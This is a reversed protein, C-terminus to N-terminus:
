ENTAEKQSSYNQENFDAMGDNFGIQFYTFADGTVGEKELIRARDAASKGDFGARYGASYADNLKVARDRAAKNMEEMM